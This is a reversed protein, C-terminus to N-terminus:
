WNMIINQRQDNLEAIRIQALKIDRLLFEKEEKISKLTQQDQKNM